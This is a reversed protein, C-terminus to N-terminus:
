EPTPEAKADRLGAFVASRHPMRTEEIQGTKENKVFKVVDPPPTGPEVPTSAPTQSQPETTVPEPPREEAVDCAKINAWPIFRVRKSFSRQGGKPTVLVGLENPEFDNDKSTLGSPSLSNVLHLTDIKM